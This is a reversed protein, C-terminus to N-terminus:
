SSLLFSVNEANIGTQRVIKWFELGLFMVFGTGTAGLVLDWWAFFDGENVLKGFTKIEGLTSSTTTV